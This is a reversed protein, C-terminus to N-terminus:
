PTYPCGPPPRMVYKEDPPLFAQVFAQKVDGNKSIRNYKVAIAILLRLEMLSLVPAFVDSKDWNHKELNGLAIIRFKARKKTGNEDYKITRQRGHNPPYLSM